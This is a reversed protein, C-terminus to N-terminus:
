FSASGESPDSLGDVDEVDLVASGCVVTGGAPLTMGVTSLCDSSASALFFFGSVQWLKIEELFKTQVEPQKRGEALGNKVFPCLCLTRLWESHQIIM